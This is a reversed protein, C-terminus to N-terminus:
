SCPAAKGTPMQSIQPGESAADGVPAPAPCPDGSGKERLPPSAWAGSGASGPQATRRRRGATITRAHLSRGDGRGTLHM